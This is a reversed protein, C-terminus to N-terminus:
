PKGAVMESAIEAPRDGPWRVSWDKGTIKRYRVKDLHLSYSLSELRSEAASPILRLIFRQILEETTKLLGPLMLLVYSLLALGAALGSFWCQGFGM